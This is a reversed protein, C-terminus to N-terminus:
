KKHTMGAVYDSALVHYFLESDDAYALILNVAGGEFVVGTCILKELRGGYVEIYSVSSLHNLASRMLKYDNVTM